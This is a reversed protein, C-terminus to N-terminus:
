VSFVLRERCKKPRIKMRGQPFPRRPIAKRRRLPVNYWVFRRYRYFDCFFLSNKEISRNIKFLNKEFYVKKRLRFLFFVTPFYCSVWDFLSLFLNNANFFLFLSQSQMGRGAGRSAKQLPRKSFLGWVGKRPVKKSFLNWVELFSEYFLLLFLPNSDRSITFVAIEAFTEELGWKMLNRLPSERIARLRPSFKMWLGNRYVLATAYRPRWGLPPFGSFPVPAK